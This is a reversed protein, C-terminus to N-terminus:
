FNEGYPYIEEKFNDEEKLFKGINEKRASYPAVSSTYILKKINNKSCYNFVRDCSQYNNFEQKKVQAYPTRIDFACHIVFDPILPIAEEWNAKTLDFKLYKIKPSLFKESNDKKDLVFIKKIEVNKALENALFKGIYGAGGTILVKM